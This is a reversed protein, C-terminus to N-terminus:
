LHHPRHAQRDLRLRCLRCIPDDLSLNSNITEYNNSERLFTMTFQSGSVVFKNVVTMMISAVCYAMIPPVTASDTRPGHARQSALHTEGSSGVPVVVEEKKVKEEHKLLAANVEAEAKLREKELKGPTFTEKDSDGAALLNVYSGRPSLGHPTTPRSM